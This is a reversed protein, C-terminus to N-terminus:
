FGSRHVRSGDEEFTVLAFLNMPIARKLRADASLSPLEGDLKEQDLLSPFGTAPRFLSASM